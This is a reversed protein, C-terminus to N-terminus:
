FRLIAEIRVGEFPPFYRCIGGSCKVSGKSSGVFLRIVNSSSIKLELQVAVWDKKNKFALTEPDTTRDYFLTLIGRRTWHVSFFSRREFYKFFQGRFDKSKWDAEISWQPFLPYTLNFQYHLAHGHTVSFFPVAGKEDRYGALVNWYGTDKFKKEIGGYFHSIRREARGVVTVDKPIDESYSYKSYILLKIGPFFYDFRGSVGVINEASDNFLNALIDLDESELLPPRNYEFDLYKYDKFELLFTLNGLYFGSELYLGFGNQRQGGSYKKKQALSFEGYFKINKHIEPLDVSVSEMFVDKHGYLSGKELRSYIGNLRIEAFSGAKWAFSGSIIKDKKDEELRDIWGGMFDLSFPGKQFQIKAGDVTTDVIHELGEREFTKLLSFLLGRGLTGYFDGFRIYLNKTQLEFFRKALSFHSRLPSFDLDTDARLGFVYRNGSLVLDVQNIVQYNRDERFQTVYDEDSFGRFLFKENISYSLLKKEEVKQDNFAKEIEDVLLIEDGPSYGQHVYRITGGRDILISYPLLLSPNYLSVVTSDSDLLVPFNYQYKQMFNKVQALTDPGDVSISLVSLGKEGYVNQINQLHRLEKTCPICWTAWFDILVVQNEYHDSLRITKGDLDRLVFDIAKQSYLPLGFLIMLTILIFSKRM